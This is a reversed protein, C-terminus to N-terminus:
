WVFSGAAEDIDAEWMDSVQYSGEDICMAEEPLRGQFHEDNLMDEAKKRAEFKDEAEIVYEAAYTNTMAYEIIYKRTM